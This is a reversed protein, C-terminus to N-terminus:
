RLLVAPETLRLARLAVLGSLLAMILTVAAATVVLWAPLSLAIDFAAGLRALGVTAPVAAAMGALAVWFSQTVVLLRLRWRPIGLARLVAYERLSAVTAAYLTQATIIAGVFLGLAAAFALALGAKTKALWYLRSRQSFEEGTLADMDPYEARLRAALASRDESNRCRALLYMVRDADTGPAALLLRATRLSCFLGPMMGAGKVGRMFGVVPVRRGAVEGAEGSQGSLGLLPLDGVYVATAGPESLRRRMEPTLDRPGGLADEELRAGLIYCQETGGGPKHWIGFGFLFPEAREIEPQSLLRGRWAAPILHGFGLSSAHRSAVWIDARARDIPRSAAALAGLLLGCQLVILLASFAVALVAPLFRARERWCIILSYGM